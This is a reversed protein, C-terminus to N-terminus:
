GAPLGAEHWADALPMFVSPEIKVTFSFRRITFTPDLEIVRQAEIKAQEDRGLRVLIAVLFARSVSFKPNLQVSSRSAEYAEEYRTTHFYSIALANYALYNLFDFPSFRLARQARETALSSQGLWSLVLASCGLAFINSNSLSLARDFLSLATAHDHDDLSIVFGAMGLASADDGGVIAARAHHVASLRDEERLGARSFRFHYCWALLAHALAYGPDLELAKKLLPIATLADQAIHSYVSPMARLVLDYADLSDPRKRKVREVEAKRLNPEIAGIVNMTIEDQLAFIDDVQRDYREAWLHVSTEAEILRTTIRVRNGVKRVGGELLYRVGLKRGAEKLDVSRGKYLFSSNRAIVFLWRIRSLGTILDEVVGDAFYDQEPDAGINQFPLVAISPKDPLALPVDVPSAPPRNTSSAPVKWDSADWKVGFAQVAREINKLSLNGLDDFTAKLRGLVANHVDGSIMIGGPPAEAELRAAVNVGDGYLDDGDVILDGLHLGIRFVLATDESQGENTEAMAQQFEIAASLADVASPFEVLAGDGTLKVLRGGHRALMPELRETRHIKLRALTGSEDRGM